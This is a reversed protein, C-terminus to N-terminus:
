FENHSLARHFNLLAAYASIYANLNESCRLIAVYNPNKSTGM